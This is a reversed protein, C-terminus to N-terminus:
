HSEARKVVVQAYHGAREKVLMASRLRARATLCNAGAAKDYGTDGCSLKQVGFPNQRLLMCDCLAEYLPHLGGGGAGTPMYLDFRLTIVAGAGHLRDTGNDGWYDGFGESAAEVGDIGVAVVPKKLPFDRQAAPFAELIRAGQLGEQGRLYGAVERKLESVSEMAM